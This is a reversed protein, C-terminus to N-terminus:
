TEGHKEREGKDLNLYFEILEDVYQDLIAIEDETLKKQEIMSQKWLRFNLEQPSLYLENVVGPIAVRTIDGDSDYIINIFCIKCKFMDGDREYSLIKFM